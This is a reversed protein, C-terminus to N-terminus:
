ARELEIKEKLSVIFVEQEEMITVLEEYQEDSLSIQNDFALVVKHTLTQNEIANKITEKLEEYSMEKQAVFNADKFNTHLKEFDNLLLDNGYFTIKNKLEKEYKKIKEENQKRYDEVYAQYISNYIAKTYEKRGLSTLHIGDAYFYDERGNSIEAWDVIYLNDYEKSLKKLKDNVHVKSDNTVTVWFIKRNGSNKIMKIKLSESCDGNTGLALIIVEGLSNKNKLEELIDSGAWRDEEELFHQNKGKEKLFDMFEASGLINYIKNFARAMGYDHAYTCSLLM